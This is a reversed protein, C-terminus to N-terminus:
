KNDREKGSEKEDKGEEERSPTPIALSLRGNVPPVVLRFEVAEASDGDSPEVWLSQRGIASTRRDAM